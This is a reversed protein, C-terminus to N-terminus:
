SRTKDIGKVEPLQTIDSVFKDICNLEGKYRIRYLDTQLDKKHVSFEALQIQHKELIKILDPYFNKNKNLDIEISCLYFIVHTQYKSTVKEEFYRVSVLVLVSIISTAIAVPYLELGVTVGIAAMIWIAAATTIGYVSGQSHIIVGGGLFGIGSIIQAAIRTPDGQGTQSSMLVALSSYLASGLSILICTRLGASKGKLEREIGVIFGCLIAVLLRPGFFSFIEVLSSNLLYKQIDM